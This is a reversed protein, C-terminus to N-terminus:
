RDQKTMLSVAYPNNGVQAYGMKTEVLIKETEGLQEELARNENHVEINRQMVGEMENRLRNEVEEAQTDVIRQLEANHGKLSENEDLLGENEVKTRVLDSAMQVHEIDSKEAREELQRVKLTLSTVCAKLSELELEREREVRQKLTWEETYLKLMEANIEVACADQVLKDARYVEKDIGGTNGFFGSELLSAASPAKDIYVDFLREKLFTTLEAMDKMALLTSANKQM